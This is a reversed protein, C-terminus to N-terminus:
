DREVDEYDADIADSTLDDFGVSSHERIERKVFNFEVKVQGSRRDQETEMALKKGLKDDYGTTGIEAINFGGRNRGAYMRTAVLRIIDPDGAMLGKILHKDTLSKVGEQAIEFYVQLEFHTKVLYKLYASSTQLKQAALDFSGYCQILAMGISDLDELDVGGTFGSSMRDMIANLVTDRDPNTGLDSSKENAQELTNQFRSNQRRVNPLINQLANQPSKSLREFNSRTETEARALTESVTDFLEDAGTAGNTNEKQDTQSM